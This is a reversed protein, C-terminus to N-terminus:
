FQTQIDSIFLKSIEVDETLERAILPLSPYLRLTEKICLELYKLEGLDQATCPRDSDAFVQDLEEM